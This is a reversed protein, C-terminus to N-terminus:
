VNSYTAGSGKLGFSLDRGSKQQYFVQNRILAKLRVEMAAVKEFDGARDYRCRQALINLMGYSTIPLVEEDRIYRISPNIRGLIHVPIDCDPGCPCDRFCGQQYMPTEEDPHYHSLFFPVGATTIGSLMIYDCTLDKTISTIEDFIFASHKKRPDHQAYITLIEGATKFGNHMPAIRMDGHNGSVSIKKGVDRYNTTTAMIYGGCPPPQFQTPTRNALVETSRNGDWDSYGCCNQISGSSYSYYPSNFIGVGIGPQNTFRFKVPAELDYPFTFKGHKIYLTWEHLIEGGGNLLLFEIQATVDDILSDRSQYVGVEKEFVSLAKALTVGAM